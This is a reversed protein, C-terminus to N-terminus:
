KSSNSNLDSLKNRAEDRLDLMWIDPSRYKKEVWRYLYDQESGRAIKALLNKDTSQNVLKSLHNAAVGRVQDCLFAYENNRWYRLVPSDQYSTEKGNTLSKVDEYLENSKKNNKAIYVLTELDTLKNVAVMRVYLNSNNKAVYALAEQDTL